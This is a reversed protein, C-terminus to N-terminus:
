PKHGRQFFITGSSVACQLSYGQLKSYMLLGGNPGTESNAGWGRKAVLNLQQNM